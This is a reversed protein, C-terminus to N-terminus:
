LTERYRSSWRQCARPNHSHCGYCDCFADVIKGSVSESKTWPPYSLILPVRIGGETSYMKYLRSPAKAMDIRMRPYKLIPLEGTSAQAWRPGYWVFSNHQGINDLSNDYYKNIVAMLDRGMVPRAEYSAGESGNDSQFLVFTNDTEGIEDLYALIRGINWDM